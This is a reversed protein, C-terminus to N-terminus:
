QEPVGTEGSAAELRRALDRLTPHRYLETWKLAPDIATARLAQMSDGGLEFFDDEQRIVEVGLVERWVDAIRKEWAGSPLGGAPASENGVERAKPPPSPLSKRDVKGNPSMPLRAIEVIRSPLMYAPLRSALHVRLDEQSIRTGAHPVAYGFLGPATSDDTNASVVAEKVAPHDRLVTEIETLEIRVGHIKVQLDARGVLEIVGNADYKALDGTRYLRENTVGGHSWQTFREETLSPQNLYGQALGAGALYLEGTLGPPVPRRDDDLIYTRQNAMPRGYPISTWTPDTAEVEFITSYISAETAGGLSIFRHAPAHKRVRDPLGVPIWDGALMILRLDRLPVYSSDDVQEIYELVVALLAPATNWVTVGHAEALEAWHGPDKSRGQSPLVVTGGAATMGILEYVSMDFSPSSLGMVSDSPGVGFRTNLDAINNVVGRHRLAIPKPTGTSGSTHIVYCLNDPTASSSLNHQPRSALATAERDVLITQPSRDSGSLLAALESSSILVACSASEIMSSVRAPPYAPDIPVFAGGAKLVALMAVLLEPSQELYLGVRVDPSDAVERLRNALRNAATNVEHYTFRTADRIVAVAEPARAAQDEFAEHLCTDQYPLPATTDNWEVLIRHMEDAELLALHELARDPQSLGEHLLTGYHNALREATTADFLREDYRLKLRYSGSSSREFAFEAECPSHSRGEAAPGFRAAILAPGPGPEQPDPGATALARLTSAGTVSFRVTGSSGSEDTVRLDIHAQGSYRHLLTALGALLVADPTTRCDEALSAITDEDSGPLDRHTVTTCQPAGAGRPRDAPIHIISSSM